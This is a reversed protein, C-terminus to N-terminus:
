KITWLLLIVMCFSTYNIYVSNVTVYNDHM